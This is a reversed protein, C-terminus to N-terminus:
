RALLRVMATDTRAVAESLAEARGILYARRVRDKETSARNRTQKAEEALADRSRAFALGIGHALDPGTMEDPVILALPPPVAPRRRALRRLM